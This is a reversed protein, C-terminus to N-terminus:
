GGPHAASDRAAPAAAPKLRPALAKGLPPRVMLLREPSPGAKEGLAQAQKSAAEGARRVDDLSPPPPATASGHGTERPHALVNDIKARQVTRGTLREVLNLPPGSPVHTGEILVTESLPRADSVTAGLQAETRIESPLNTSGLATVPAYLYAGSPAGRDGMMMPSWGVYQDNARWDVWAPAWVTGPQWVWGQFEDHAWRGYHYTAWGFPEDSIWVWGYADTPAWFGSQYPRWDMFTTRPRFLYGYPEILVWDGYGQLADYFIRYEPLLGARAATMSSGPPGDSRTSPGPACSSTAAVLALALLGAIPDVVRIFSRPAMVALLGPWPPAFDLRDM